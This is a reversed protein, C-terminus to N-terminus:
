PPRVTRIRIEWESNPEIEPTFDTQPEIPSLRVWSFGSSSKSAWGGIDHDADGVLVRAVERLLKTDREVLAEWLAFRSYGGVMIWCVWAAARSPEALLEKRLLAPDGNAPLNRECWLAGEDTAAKAVPHDRNWFSLPGVDDSLTPEALSVGIMFDMAPPFRVAPSGLVTEPAARRPDRKWAGALEPSPDPEFANVLLIHTPPWPLALHDRSRLNAVLTVPQNDWSVAKAERFTSVVDMNVAPFTIPNWTVTDTNGVVVPWVLPIGVGIDLRALTHNVAAYQDGGVDAIVDAAVRRIETELWRLAKRAADSLVLGSRDVALRGAARRRWDIEVWASSPDFEPEDEADSTAAPDELVPRETRQVVHMGNWSAAVNGWPVAVEPAHLPGGGFKRKPAAILALCAGDDTQFYPLSIRFMGLDDPLSGERHRWALGEVAAAHLKARHASSQEDYERYRSPLLEDGPDRYPEFQSLVRLRQEDSRDAFGQRWVREIGAAPVVLTVRCPLHRITKELYKGLESAFKSANGDTVDRRLELEVDTGRRTRRIRRLEGFDEFGRTVFQWGEGDADAAEPDRRTHLRLRSGILFYSLVGIGFEATRGMAFGHELADRELALEEHRKTSGGVLFRDRLLSRTMGCGTDTCTLILADGREELRLAVNHLQCIADVDDQDTPDVLQLRERAIQERVADLANQLLERIAALPTGYLALGGLLELVKTSDPRFTGDMYEYTDELPTIDAHAATDLRWTYDYAGRLGPVQEFKTEDALRRCLQLERDIGEVTEMVARHVVADPPSSSVVIRTGDHVVSIYHDKLWYVKSDDHIDWHDLLVAPTRERDIDLVDAVRLVCACYRLHLVHAPNGKLRPNFRPKKLEEYGLHHSRCLAILDDTFGAYLLSEHDRLNEDIWDASWDNHRHRAYVTLLRRVKGPSMDGLPPRLGGWADDLWRSLAKAEVPDPLPEGTVLHDHIATIRGVEPAMGVDHGHAALLLAALDLASLSELRDEGVVQVEEQAVNYAHRDDHLTIDNASGGSRLVPALVRMCIEVYQLLDSGAPERADLEAWLRTGRWLDTTTQATAM